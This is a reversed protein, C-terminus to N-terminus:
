LNNKKLPKYKIKTDKYAQKILAMIDNIDKPNKVEIECYDTAGWLYNQGRIERGLNKPNNIQKRIPITIVLHNNQLMLKNKDKKLIKCFTVGNSEFKDYSKLNYYSKVDDSLSTIEKEFMQYLEIPTKQPSKVDNGNKPIENLKDLIKNINKKMDSVDQELKKINSGYLIKKIDELYQKLESNPIDETINEQFLKVDNNSLNNLLLIKNAYKKVEWLEVNIGEFTDAAKTQHKTFNSSIIILKPNKFNFDNVSLNKNMKKNYELVFDAKKNNLASLYAFIQAFVEKNEKTKYEIIVFSDAKKDYALTDIRLSDVSFEDKIYELGFIDELNESILKHLPIESGVSKKGIKVLKKESSSVFIVECQEM